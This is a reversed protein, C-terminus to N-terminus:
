HPHLCPMKVHEEHAKTALTNGMNLVILADSTNDGLGLPLDAGKADQMLVKPWFVDQPVCLQFPSQDDMLTSQVSVGHM